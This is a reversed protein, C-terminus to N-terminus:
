LGEGGDLAATLDTFAVALRAIFDTGEVPMAFTSCVAHPVNLRVAKWTEVDKVASIGV